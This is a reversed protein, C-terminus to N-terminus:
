SAIPSDPGTWPSSQVESIELRGRLEDITPQHSIGGHWKVVYWAQVTEANESYVTVEFCYSGRGFECSQASPRLLPLLVFREPDRTSVKGLNFIYPRRSVLNREETPRPGLEDLAWLLALPIWNKERVWTDNQFTAMATLMPQCQKALTVGDNTLPINVYFGLGASRRVQQILSSGAQTDLMQVTEFEEAQRFLPPAQSYPGIRLKPRRDQEQEEERRKAREQWKRQRNVVWAYCGTILVLIFTCVAQVWAAKESPTLSYWQVSLNMIRHLYDM